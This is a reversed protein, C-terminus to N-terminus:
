GTARHTPTSGNSQIVDFGDPTNLLGASTGAVETVGYHWVVAGTAPDVAVLRDRYDDNLLYAGSPLLEVLSPRDLEDRGSMPRWSWLIKGTRNFIVIAGPHEYDAVLYRDPGIQQPDSPYGIPLHATWVLHGGTTYEDIWSGNIESVLLNGDGLPTDGNPSGLMTPPQHICAGITGIQTLVKGRRSLVLVRCNKPDAVTIDGNRLLYADDPNDLYGAASGAARPHGYSWVVRGSPYAIEVVTENEEQNSIIATGHRIFFADDPFYFGGPPPPAGARPFRWLIHGSADILLLRNNGRDAILLREGVLPTGAGTQGAHGFRSNPFAVQVSAVPGTATEGGVIWLRGGAVAAGAYAIAEQLSGASSVRGTAPDFAEIAARPSTGSVSTSGGALYITGDLNAAVAGVLGVPLHGVMRVSGDVPDVREITSM